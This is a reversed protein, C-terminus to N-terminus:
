TEMENSYTNTKSGVLAISVVCIYALLVACVVLLVTAQITFRKWRLLIKRMHDCRPTGEESVRVTRVLKVYSWNLVLLLILSM